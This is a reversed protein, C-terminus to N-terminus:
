TTILSYLFRPLAAIAAFFGAAAALFFHNSLVHLKRDLIRVPLFRPTEIQRELRNFGAFAVLSHVIYHDSVHCRLAAAGRGGLGPTRDATSALLRPTLLSQAPGAVKM